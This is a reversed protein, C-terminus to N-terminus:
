VYELLISGNEYKTKKVFTEVLNGEPDKIYKKELNETNNSNQSFINFDHIYNNTINIQKQNPTKCSNNKDSFNMKFSINKTKISNNLNKKNLVKQESMFYEINNINETNINNKKIKKEKIDKKSKKDKNQEPKEKDPTYVKKTRTIITTIISNGEVKETKSIIPKEKLEKYYINNDMYNKLDSIEENSKMVDIDVFRGTKMLKDNNQNIPEENKGNFINNNIVTNSNSNDINVIDLNENINTTKPFSGNAIFSRNQINNFINECPNIDIKNMSFNRKKPIIDKYMQSKSKVKEYKIQFRHGEVFNENSKQEKELGKKSNRKQNTKIINRIIPEDKKKNSDEKINTEIINSFIKKDDFDIKVIDSNIENDNILCDNISKNNNIINYSSSNNLFINKNRKDDQAMNYMKILKKIEKKTKPRYVQNLFSTNENKDGNNLNIEQKIFTRRSSNDSFNDEILYNNNNTCIHNPPYNSKTYKEQFKQKLLMGENNKNNSVFERWDFSKRGKYYINKNKKSYPSKNNPFYLFNNVKNNSDQKNNNNNNIIKNNNYYYKEVSSWRNQNKNKNYYIKNNINNTQNKTNDIENMNKNAGIMKNSNNPANRNKSNNEKNLNYNNPEIIQKKEYLLQKNFENKIEERFEKKLEEKLQSKIDNKIENIKKRSYEENNMETDGQISRIDIISPNNENDNNNNRLNKTDKFIYETFNNKLQYTKETDSNFDFFEQNYNIGSPAKKIYNIEYTENKPSININESIKDCTPTKSHPTKTNRNNIKHLIEMKEEHNLRQFKNKGNNKCNNFSCVSKSKNLNKKSIEIINQQELNTRGAMTFKNEKSKEIDSLEEKNEEDSPKQFTNINSSNMRKLMVKQININKANFQKPSFVENNNKYELYQIKKPTKYYINKGENLNIQINNNTLNYNDNLNIDMRINMPIDSEKKRPLIKLTLDDKDKKNNINQIFSIYETNNNPYNNQNYFYNQKLKSYNSKNFNNNNNDNNNNYMMYINNNINNNINSINKNNNLKYPSFDQVIDIVTCMLNSDILDCSIGIFKMEHNLLMNRGKEEKLIHNVIEEPNDLEFLVTEFIKGTREGYKSLRARINKKTPELEKLNLSHNKKYNLIIKNLLSKAALSLERIEFFPKLVKKSHIDQLFNIIEKQDLSSKYKNKQILNNCFELPNKRLYNILSYIDNELKTFNPLSKEMQRIMQNNKSYLNKKNEKFDNPDINEYQNM